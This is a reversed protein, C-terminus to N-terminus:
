QNIRGARTGRAIEHFCEEDGGADDTESFDAVFGLEQGKQQGGFEALRQGDHQRNENGGDGVVREGGGDAGPDGAHQPGVYQAPYEAYREQGHRGPGQDGVLEVFVFRLQGLIADEQGGQDGEEHRFHSIFRLHRGHRQCRAVM